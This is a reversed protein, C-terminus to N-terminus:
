HDIVKQYVDGFDRLWLANDRAYHEVAIRSEDLTFPYEAFGRPARVAAGCTSMGSSVNFSNVDGNEIDFALAMDTNLM